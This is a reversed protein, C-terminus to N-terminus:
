RHRCCASSNWRARLDTPAIAEHGRDRPTSGASPGGRIHDMLKVVQGGIRSGNGPQAFRAVRHHSACLFHRASSSSRTKPAMSSPGGTAPQAAKYTIHSPRQVALTARRRRRSATANVGLTPASICGSHVAGTHLRGAKHGRLVTWRGDHCGNAPVRTSPGAGIASRQPCRNLFKGTPCRPLGETPRQDSSRRSTTTCPAIDAYCDALRRSGKAAHGFDLDSWFLGAAGCSRAGRGPPRMVLVNTPLHHVTKSDNVFFKYAERRVCLVAAPDATGQCDNRDGM